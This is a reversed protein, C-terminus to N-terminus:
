VNREKACERSKQLLPIALLEQSVPRALRVPVGDIGVDHLSAAANLSRLLIPVGPRGASFSSCM